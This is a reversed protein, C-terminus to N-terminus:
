RKETVWFHLAVYSAITFVAIFIGLSGIDPWWFAQARFGFMSLITAAPVDIEVGFQFLNTLIGDLYKLFPLQPFLGENGEVASVEVRECCSGRLRCPLVFHYAVM